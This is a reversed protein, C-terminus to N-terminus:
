KKKNTKKKNNSTTKPKTTTKTINPLYSEGQEGKEDRHMGLERLEADTLKDLERTETVTDEAVSIPVDESAEEIVEVPEPEEDAVSSLTVDLEPHPFLPKAEKKVVIPEAYSEIDRITEKLCDTCMAITNGMERRKSIVYVNHTNKCGRVSCKKKFKKLFM